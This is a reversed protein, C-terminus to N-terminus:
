AAYEILGAYSRREVINTIGASVSSSAKVNFPLFRLITRASKSVAISALPTSAFTIAFINLLNSLAKGLHFVSM